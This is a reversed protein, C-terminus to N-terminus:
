PKQKEIKKVRKDLSSVEKSIGKIWDRFATINNEMQPSGTKGVARVFKNFADEVESMQEELREIRKVVPDDDKAQTETTPTLLLFIYLCAGVVICPAYRRM